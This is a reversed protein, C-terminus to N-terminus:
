VLAGVCMIIKRASVFWSARNRRDARPQNRQPAVIEDWPHRAYIKLCVSWISRTLSRIFERDIIGGGEADDWEVLQKMIGKFLPIDGNIKVQLFVDTLKRRLGWCGM